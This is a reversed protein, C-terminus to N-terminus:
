AISLALSQFISIVLAYVLKPTSWFSGRKTTLCFLLGEGWGVPTQFPHRRVFTELLGLLRTMQNRIKQLQHDYAALLENKASETFENMTELWRTQMETVDAKLKTKINTRDEEMLRRM